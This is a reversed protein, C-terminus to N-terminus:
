LENANFKLFQLLKGSTTSRRPLPYHHSHYPQCNCASHRSPQTHRYSRGPFWYFRIAITHTRMPLQWCIELRFGDEFRNFRNACLPLDYSSQSTCTALTYKDIILKKNDSQFHRRAKLHSLIFCASSCQNWLCQTWSSITTDLKRISSVQIGDLIVKTSKHLKHFHRFRLCFYHIISEDPGDAM